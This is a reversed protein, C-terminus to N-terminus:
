GAALPPPEELQYDVLREVFQELTEEAPSINRRQACVYLKRALMLVSEKLMKPQASMDPYKTTFALDDALVSSFEHTQEGDPGDLVLRVQLKTSMM